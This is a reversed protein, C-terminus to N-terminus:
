SIILNSFIESIHMKYNGFENIIYKKLDVANEIEDDHTDNYMCMGNFMIVNKYGNTQYSFYSIFGHYKDNGIDEIEQNLTNVVHTYDCYTLL